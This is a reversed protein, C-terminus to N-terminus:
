DVFVFHGPNLAAQFSKQLVGSDNYVKVEGTVVYGHADTCYLQNTFPDVSMGFLTEFQSGNIFNYNIITDAEMDFTMVNSNNKDVVYAIDKLKNPVFATLPYNITQIVSDSETDIIVLKPDITNHNGRSIVYIKDNYGVVTGSNIGVSIKKIEVLLNPDIVSVTTDYNPFDLGGSNAVYVKDHQVAIGEPNRGVQIFAQINFDTTDIVAVTGDFCSIFAKDHYFTINRPQRAVGNDFLPIQAISNGKLDTVEIQSSVNVVIYIKSGYEQIDNGTDGLKRNNKLEFYNNTVTSQTINYQTLTTNNANFLGENLIYVIRDGVQNNPNENEIFQPEKKCGIISLIFIIYIFYKNM